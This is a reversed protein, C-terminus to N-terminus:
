GQDTARSAIDRFMDSYNQRTMAGRGKPADQPNVRYAPEGRENTGMPEFMTKHNEIFQQAMGTFAEMPLNHIGARSAVGAGVRALSGLTFSEMSRAHKMMESMAETQFLALAPVPANPDIDGVRPAVRPGYFYRKSEGQRHALKNEVFLHASDKVIDIAEGQREEARVKRYGAVWEQATLGTKGAAQLVELADILKSQERPERDAVLREIERYAENDYTEMLPLGSLRRLYNLDM